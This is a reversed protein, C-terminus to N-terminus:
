AVSVTGTTPDVAFSGKRQELFAKLKMKMNDPRKVKSGLVALSSPGNQQLFARLATEFDKEGSVGGKSQAIKAPASAPAKAAAEPRAKKVPQPTKAAVAPRKRAPLPSDEASDAGAALGSDSDGEESDEEEEESGDEDDSSDMALAAAPAGGESDSDSEEEESSGEEQSSEEAQDAVLLARKGNLASLPIAVPPEDDESSGTEM